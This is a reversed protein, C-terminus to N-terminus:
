PCNAYPPPGENVSRLQLQARYDALVQNTKSYTPDTEGSLRFYSADTDTLTANPDGQVGKWTAKSVPTTFLSPDIVVDRCCFPWWWRRECLTPAVHWWWGVSCTPNNKTSVHLDGQIWVKKPQLGQAIMLRCMEHARGWCGDDPYMFPICPPPVTTPNCSTAAMDDFVQQLQAPSRCGSWCRWWWWPWWCWRWIRLWLPDLAIERGPFPSPIVPGEPGPRYPRVDIIHHSDDETVVFVADSSSAERLQAAMEDFDGSERRLRHKAHSDELEVELDGEGRTSVQRVRTVHPILLKSIASSDPDIELYVPLSREALGQLVSALGSAKPHEGELRVTRDDALEVQVTGRKGVLIERLSDPPGVRVVTAVIANPNPM